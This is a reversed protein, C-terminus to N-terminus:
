NAGAAERRFVVYWYNASVREVRVPRYRERFAADRLLRAEVPFPRMGLAQGGRLTPKSTSHLVVRRVDRADLLATDIRKDLHGGPLSAVTPDTIGGLDLVPTDPYPIRGVDVLATSGGHADLVARVREAAAALEVGAVRARHWELPGDAAFVIVAVALAVRSWGDLRGDDCCTSAVFWAFAPIVPVFLRFGPMWDGGALAVAGIHVALAVGVALVAPGRRGAGRAMLVAGGVGSLLLVASAVYELGHGLEGPKARVALPLPSGFCAVRFAILALLSGALVAVAFGMRRPPLGVTALVVAFPVLEPRLWPVCALALVGAVTGGRIRSRLLEGAAWAALGTELGAIAWVAVSAPGVAFLAYVARDRAAPLLAGVRIFAVLYAVVGVAKQVVVPDLSAWTGVVGPVLGLPGTVGDTWEGGHMGYGAGEAITRAYRALIFADDVTYPWAYASAVIFACAGVILPLLKM